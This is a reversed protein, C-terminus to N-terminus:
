KQGLSRSWSAATFINKTQTETFPAFLFFGQYPDKVVQVCLRQLENVRETRVVATLVQFGLHQKNPSFLRTFKGSLWFAVYGAFRSKWRRLLYRTRYEVELFLHSRLGNAFEVLYYFDAVNLSQGLKLRIGESVVSRLQRENLTAIVKGGIEQLSRELDICLRTVYLDHDLFRVDPLRSPSIPYYHKPKDGNVLALLKAGQNTLLFAASPNKINPLDYHTPPLRFLYGEISLKRLQEQTKREGWGFRLRVLDTDIIRFRGVVQILDLQEVELWAPVLKRYRKQSYQAILKPKAPYPM